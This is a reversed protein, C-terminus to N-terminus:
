FGHQMSLVGAFIAVTAGVSIVTLLTSSKRVRLSRLNYSLPVLAM